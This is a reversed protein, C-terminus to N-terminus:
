QLFSVKKEGGIALLCQPKGNVFTEAEIRLFNLKFSAWFKAKCTSAAM